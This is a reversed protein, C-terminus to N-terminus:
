RVEPVFVKRKFDWRYVLKAMVEMLLEDAFCRRVIVHRGGNYKSTLKVVLDCVEDIKERIEEIEERSLLDMVKAM